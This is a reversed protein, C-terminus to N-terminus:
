EVGLVVALIADLEAQLSRSNKKARKKLAVHQKATFRAAYAVRDVNRAGQKRTQTNPKM